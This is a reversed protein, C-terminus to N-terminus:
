MMNSLYKSHHVPVAFHSQLNMLLIKFENLFKKKDRIGVSLSSDDIPRVKTM